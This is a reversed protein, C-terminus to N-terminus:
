MRWFYQMKQQLKYNKHSNSSRHFREIAFRIFLLWTQCSFATLVSVCWISTFNFSLFQSNLSFPKKACINKSTCPFHMLSKWRCFVRKTCYVPLPASWVCSINWSSINRFLYITKTKAWIKVPALSHFTLTFLAVFYAKISNGSRIVNSNVHNTQIIQTKSETEISKKEREFKLLFYFLSGFRLLSNPM